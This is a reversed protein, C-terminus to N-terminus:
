QLFHGAYSWLPTRCRGFITTRMTGPTRPGLSPALTSMSACLPMRPRDMHLGRPAWSALLFSSKRTVDRHKVFLSFYSGRPSSKPLTRPAMQSDLDSGVVSCIELGNKSRVYLAWLSSLDVACRVDLDSGLELARPSRFLETLPACFLLFIAKFRKPPAIKM